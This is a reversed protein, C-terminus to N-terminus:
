RRRSVLTESASIPTAPVSRPASSSTMSRANDRQMYWPHRVPLFAWGGSGSAQFGSEMILIGGNPDNCPFGPCPPPSALAHGALGLAIAANIIGRIRRSKM